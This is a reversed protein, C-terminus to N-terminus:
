DTVKWSGQRDKCSEMPETAYFWAKEPIDVLAPSCRVHPVQTILIRRGHHDIGLRYPEFESFSYAYVVSYLAEINNLDYMFITMM